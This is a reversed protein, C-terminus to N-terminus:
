AERGYVKLRTRLETCTNLGQQLAYVYAHTLLFCAEDINGRQESTDAANTYLTSLTEYDCREIASFLEHETSPHNKEM